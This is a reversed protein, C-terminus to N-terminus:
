NNWRSIKKNRPKVSEKNKLSKENLNKFPEEM